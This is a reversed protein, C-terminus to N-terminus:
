LVRINANFYKNVHLIGNFRMHRLSVLEVGLPM